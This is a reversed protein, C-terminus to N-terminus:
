DKPDTNEFILTGVLVLFALIYALAVFFHAGSKIIIGFIAAFSLAHSLPLRYKKM